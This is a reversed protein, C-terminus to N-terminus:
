GKDYYMQNVTQCIAEKFTMLDLAPLAFCYARPKSDPFDQNSRQDAM